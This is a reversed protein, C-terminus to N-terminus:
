QSPESTVFSLAVESVGEPAPARTTFSVSTGEGVEVSEPKFTWRSLLEGGPGLAEAQLLPSTLIENTENRLAGTIEIVPGATSMALRHQVDDIKLGFPSAEIGVVAYADATQPAIQVIEDRYAVVAYIAGAVAAVWASWGFARLPTLRNKERSEARRRAKRMARELERPTVRLSAFFEEDFVNPDFRRVDEMRALATERRREARVRRGFGREHGNYDEVDEWDADVIVADRPARRDDYDRDDTRREHDYDDFDDYNEDYDRRANTERPREDPYRRSNEEAKDRNGFRLAAHDDGRERSEKRDARPEPDSKNKRGFFGRLGSEEEDDDEVIFQKGKRWGKPADSKETNEQELKKRSIFRGKEDRPPLEDVEDSRSASTPEGFLSDDEDDDYTYDYDEDDRYDRRESQEASKRNRDRYDREDRYNDDFDEHDRRSRASRADRDEDEISRVNLRRGQQAPARDDRSRRSEPQDDRLQRSKPESRRSRDSDRQPALAEIPTAELAEPAPVYWSEGCATCRVSRGNPFFRDDEVDYRTACDPCTIIM